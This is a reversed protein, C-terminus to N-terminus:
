FNNGMGKQKNISEQLDNVFSDKQWTNTAWEQLRIQKTFQSRFSWPELGARVFLKCLVGGWSFFVPHPPACTMGTLRSAYCLFIPTWAAQAFFSVRDAFYSSCFLSSAHSLHYLASRALLFCQTWVETRYFSFDKWYIRDLGWNRERFKHCCESEGRLKLITTILGKPQWLLLLSRDTEV